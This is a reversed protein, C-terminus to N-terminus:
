EWWGMHVQDVVMVLFLQWKVLFGFTSGVIHMTEWSTLDNRLSTLDQDEEMGTVKILVVSACGKLEQYIEAM